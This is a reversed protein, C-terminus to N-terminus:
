PRALPPLCCMGNRRTNAARSRASAETLGYVHTVRAGLRELREIITPSPPAGATTIRPPHELRHAEEATAIVNCVTCAGCLTSVGLDDIAAWISAPHVARLCVHTGAAPASALAACTEPGIDLGSHTYGFEPDPIEIVARLAPRQELREAM